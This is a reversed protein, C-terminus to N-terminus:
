KSLHMLGESWRKEDGYFEQNDGKCEVRMHGCYCKGRRVGIRVRRLPSSTEQGEEGDGNRAVVRMEYIVGPVLGSVVSWNRDSEDQTSIWQLQGSIYCM